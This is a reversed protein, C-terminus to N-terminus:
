FRAGKLIVPRVLEVRVEGVQYMLVGDTSATVSGIAEVYAVVFNFPKTTSLCFM